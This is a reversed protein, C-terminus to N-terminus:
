LALREALYDYLADIDVHKEIEADIEAGSLYNLREVYTIDAPSLDVSYVTPTLILIASLIFLLLRKKM